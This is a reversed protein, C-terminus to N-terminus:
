ARVAKSYDTFYPRMDNLINKSASVSYTGDSERHFTMITVFWGAIWHITIELTDDDTFRATSYTRRLQPLVSDTEHVRIEGDFWAEFDAYGDVRLDAKEKGVSLVFDTMEKKKTLDYFSEFFNFGGPSVGIWPTATGETVRYNGSFRDEDPVYENAPSAAIRLSAIYRQLEAYDEDNQELPEEGMADFLYKYVMELTRAPGYPEVGGENIAVVIKKEPIM